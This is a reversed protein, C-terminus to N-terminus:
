RPRRAPDGRLHAWLADATGLGQAALFWPPCPSPSTSASRSSPTKPRSSSSTTRWSTAPVVASSGNRTRRRRSGRALHRRQAGARARVLRGRRSARRVGHGLGPDRRGGRRRRTRAHGRRDAPGRRGADVRRGAGNHLTATGIPVFVHVHPAQPASVQEAAGLRGRGSSRTASTSPSRARTARAPRSAVLGGGALADNSTSSSTARTSDTPTPRPGVDARPPRGCDPQRQGRLPHHRPGRENAPRPGPLHRRGDRHQRPARARRRPGLHRDGHGPARPHRIRRGGRVVDDNNVICSATVPTRPTTTGPWFSFSHWSDLWDLETHFRESARRLDIVPRLTRGATCAEGGRHQFRCAVSRSIYSLSKEEVQSGRVRQAAAALGPDSSCGM